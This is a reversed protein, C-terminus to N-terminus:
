SSAEVQQNPSHTEADNPKEERVDEWGFGCTGSCRGCYLCSSHDIKGHDLAGMICVNSCAGCHTCPKRNALRIPSYRAIWGLAAGMPCMYRCWAMSLVLASLMVALLAVASSYDVEDGFLTCWPSTVFVGVVSLLLWLIVSVYKVRKLGRDRHELPLAVVLYILLFTAWMAAVNESFFQTGPRVLYAMWFVLLGSGALLCYGAILSRRRSLRARWRSLGSVTESFFGLPCLWGCFLRGAALTVAVLLAFMCLHGFAIVDNKGVMKLAFIWGRVMCLCRHLFIIFVFSAVLQCCLRTIRLIRPNRCTHLAIHAFVLLAFFIVFPSADVWSGFIPLLPRQVMKFLPVDLQM